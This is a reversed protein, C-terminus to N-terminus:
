KKLAIYYIRFTDVINISNMFCTSQLNYCIYVLLYKYM